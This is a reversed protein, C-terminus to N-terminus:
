APDPAKGKPYHEVVWQSLVQDPEDVAARTITFARTGDRDSILKLGFQFDKFRDECLARITRDTELSLEVLREIAEEDFSLTLGHQQEFRDAYASVERSLVERQQERHSLLLDKLAPRPDAITERTVEFSTVATSPLEFKYDRFVQELTTTLGRAGTAEVHARTAIEHVAERTLDFDIGYGQFAEHYQQLVSDESKLLIQELDEVELPECAVRIPLRGVFEPEFGYQIFDRAEAMALYEALGRAHDEGAQQFGIPGTEVRKEILESLSDFAGSVIFLMHRTSVTRKGPGQGRQLDMVAQMQGLIDTQSFLNVETEEMLKLLNVQVGRGSVDKGGQGSGQAAIKDIEDIYIIGYQALETNGDAMRVLDRVIDEVDYGVYGTESFKTADAKVFPVGILKAICRMLYTKGVGTPGMLLINPKVYEKEGPSTQELCRRVHNYHDCISVALVKKAEPQKIVFRDLYDRVERPKLSFSRIRKLIEETPDEEAEPPPSEPAPAATAGPPGANFQVNAQRLFDQVQKMMDDEPRPADADPKPEDTM